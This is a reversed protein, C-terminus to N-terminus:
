SLNGYLIKTVILYVCYISSSTSTDTGRKMMERLVFDVYQKRKVPLMLNVNIRM